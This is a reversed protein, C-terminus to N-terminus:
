RITQDDSRDWAHDGPDEEEGVEGDQENAQRLDEGLRTHGCPCPVHGAVVEENPVPDQALWPVPDDQQQHRADVQQHEDDVVHVGADGEVLARHLLMHDGHERRPDGQRAQSELFLVLPHAGDGDAIALTGECTLPAIGDKERHDHGRREAGEGELGEGDRRRGHLLAQQDSVIEGQVSGDIRMTGSFVLKGDLRTSEGLVSSISDIIIKDKKSFM